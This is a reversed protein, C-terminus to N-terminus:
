FFKSIKQSQIRVMRVLGLCPTKAFFLSRIAENCLLDSNFHKTQMLHKVRSGTNLQTGLFYRQVLYVYILFILHQDCHCMEM